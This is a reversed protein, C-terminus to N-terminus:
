WVVCGSATVALVLNAVTFPNQVFGYFQLEVRGVKLSLLMEAQFGRQRTLM